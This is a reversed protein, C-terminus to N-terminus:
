HEHFKMKHLKEVDKRTMIIRSIIYYLLAFLIRTLNEISFIFYIALNIVNGSFLKPFQKVSRIVLM